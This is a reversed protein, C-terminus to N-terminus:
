KATHRISKSKNPLQTIYKIKKKPRKGKAQNTQKPEVEFTNQNTAEISKTDKYISSTEEKQSIGIIQPEISLHIDTQDSDITHMQNKRGPSQTSMPMTEMHYNSIQNNDCNEKYLQKPNTEESEITRISETQYAQRTTEEYPITEDLTRCSPCIYSGQTSEGTLETCMVHAWQSCVICEIAPDNNTPQQCIYCINYGATGIDSDRSYTDKEIEMFEMQMNSDCLQRDYRLHNSIPSLSTSSLNVRPQLMIM